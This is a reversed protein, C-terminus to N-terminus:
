HTLAHLYKADGLIARLNRALRFNDFVNYMGSLIALIFVCLVLVRQYVGNKGPANEQSIIYVNKAFNLNLAKQASVITYETYRVM